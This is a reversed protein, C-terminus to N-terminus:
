KKIYYEINSGISGIGGGRLFINYTLLKVFSRSLRPYLALEDEEKNEKDKRRPHIKTPIASLLDDSSVEKAIEDESFGINIYNFVIM